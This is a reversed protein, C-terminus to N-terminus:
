RTYGTNRAYGTYGTYITYRTHRTYRTYCQDGSLVCWAVNDCVNVHLVPVGHM